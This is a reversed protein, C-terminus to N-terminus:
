NKMKQKENEETAPITAAAGALSLPHPAPQCTSVFSAGQWGHRFVGKPPPVLASLGTLNAPADACCGCGGLIFSETTM